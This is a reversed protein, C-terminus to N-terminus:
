KVHWGYFADLLPLVIQSSLLCVDDSFSCSFFNVSSLITANSFAISHFLSGFSHQILSNRIIKRKKKEKKKQSNARAAARSECTHHTRANENSKEIWQLTASQRSDFVAKPARCECVNETVKSRKQNNKNNSSSTPKDDWRVSSHVPTTSRQIERVRRIVRCINTQHTQTGSTGRQNHTRIPKLGSLFIVIVYIMTVKATFPKCSYRM